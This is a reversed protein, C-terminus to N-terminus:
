RRPWRSTTRSPRICRACWSRGPSCPAAALPAPGSGAGRDARPACRGRFTDGPVAIAIFELSNVFARVFHQDNFLLFFNKFGVFKTVPRVLHANTLSLSLNTIIPFVRISLFLFVIPIFVAWIFIIRGRKLSGPKGFWKYIYSERKM